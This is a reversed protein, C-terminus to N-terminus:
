ATKITNNLWEVIASKPYLVRGRKGNEIKKYSPGIGERRWNELSGPSVGLTEATQASNLCLLKKYKPNIENVEQVTM